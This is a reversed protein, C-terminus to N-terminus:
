QNLHELPNFPSSYEFIEKKPSFHLLGFCAVMIMINCGESIYENTNWGCKQLIFVIKLLQILLQTPKNNFIGNLFHLAM